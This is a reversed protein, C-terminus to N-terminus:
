GAAGLRAYAEEPGVQIRSPDIAQAHALIERETIEPFEWYALVMGSLFWM